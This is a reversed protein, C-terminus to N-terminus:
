FDEIFKPDMAMNEWQHGRQIKSVQSPKGLNKGDSKCIPHNSVPM